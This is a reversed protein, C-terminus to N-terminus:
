IENKKKKILLKEEGKLRSYLKTNVSKTFYYSRKIVYDRKLLNRYSLILCLFFRRM